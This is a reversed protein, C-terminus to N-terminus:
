KKNKAIKYALQQKMQSALNSQLVKSVLEPDLGPNTMCQFVDALTVANGDHAELVIQEGTEIEGEEIVRLYFGWKGSSYFRKVM